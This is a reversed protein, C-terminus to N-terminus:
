RYPSWDEDHVIRKYSLMSANIITEASNLYWFITSCKLNKCHSGPNAKKLKNYSITLLKANGGYNGKLECVKVFRLLEIFYLAAITKAQRKVTKDMAKM